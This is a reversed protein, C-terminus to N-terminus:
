CPFIGFSPQYFRVGAFFVHKVQNISFLPFVLFPCFLILPALELSSFPNWNGSPTGEVFEHPTFALGRSTTEHPVWFHAATEEQSGASVVGVLIGCFVCRVLATPFSWKQSVVILAEWLSVWWVVPLNGQIM